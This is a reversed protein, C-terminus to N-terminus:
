TSRPCAAGAGRQAAGGSGPHLDTSGSTRELRAVNASDNLLHTLDLPSTNYFREGAVKRLIQDASPSGLEVTKAKELVAAKSPELACELRRLVLFPLVFQGYEHAKVDGRLVEALSWIFAVKGSFSSEM